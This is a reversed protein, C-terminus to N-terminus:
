LGKRIWADRVRRLTIDCGGAWLEKESTSLTSALGWGWAGGHMNRCGIAAFVVHLTRVVQRGEEFSVSHSRKEVQRKGMCSAAGSPQPRLAPSAHWGDGACPPDHAGLEKAEAVEEEKSTDVFICVHM